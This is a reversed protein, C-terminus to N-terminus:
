VHVTTAVYRARQSMLFRPWTREKAVLSRAFSSAIIPLYIPSALQFSTGERKPRAYRRFALGRPPNIPRVCLRLRLWIHPVPSFVFATPGDDRLAEREHRSNWPTLVRARLLWDSSCAM